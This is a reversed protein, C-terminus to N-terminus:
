KKGMKSIKDRAQKAESSLKRRTEEFKLKLDKDKGVDHKLQIKRVQPLLGIWWGTIITRWLRYLWAIIRLIYVLTALGLLIGALMLPLLLLLVALIGIVNRIAVFAFIMLFILLAGMALLSIFNPLAAAWLAITRILPYLNKVNYILLAGIILAAFLGIAGGFILFGLILLVLPDLM